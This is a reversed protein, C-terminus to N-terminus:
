TITLDPHHSFMPTEHSPTKISNIQASRTPQGTCTSYVQRRTFILQDLLRETTLRAREMIGYVVPKGTNVAASFAVIGTTTYSYVYSEGTFLFM